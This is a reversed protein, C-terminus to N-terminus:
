SRGGRGQPPLNGTRIGSQRDLAKQADQMACQMHNVAETVQDGYFTAAVINRGAGYPSSVVVRGSELLTESTAANVQLPSTQAKEAQLKEQRELLECIAVYDRHTDDEHIRKQAYDRPTYTSRDTMVKPDTRANADAGHALLLECIDLRGASAASHLPSSGIKNARNVDAGSALLAECMNINGAYSIALLLPTMGNDQFVNVPAGQSIL